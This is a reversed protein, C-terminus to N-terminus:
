DGASMLKLGVDSVGCLTDNDMLHSLRFLLTDCKVPGFHGTGSEVQYLLGATTGRRWGDDDYIGCVVTDTLFPLSDGPLFGDLRMVLNKFGYAATTRVGIRFDYERYGGAGSPAYSYCLTDTATWRSGAVPNYSHFVTSDCATLLLVILLLCSSPRTMRLRAM